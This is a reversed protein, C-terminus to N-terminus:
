VNPPPPGSGAKREALGRDKPNMARGSLFDAGALVCVAADVLDASTALDPVTESITLKTRLAAVIERRANTQAPKKYSILRIRHCGFHSSSIGRDRLVHFM